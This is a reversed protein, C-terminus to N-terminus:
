VAPAIKRLPILARLRSDRLWVGLWLLSPTVIQLVLPDGVRLHALIAGGMYGTFLIAGLIATAPYWYAGLCLITLCALIAEIHPPMGMHIMEQHTPSPIAPFFTALTGFIFPFSAVGSIVRGTWTMRKSQM